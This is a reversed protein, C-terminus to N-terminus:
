KKVAILRPYGLELSGYQNVKIAEPALTYTGTQYPIPMNGDSQIIIQIEEPYRKPEGERGFTHAYGTQLHYVKGAQSTKSQSNTSEIDITIPM